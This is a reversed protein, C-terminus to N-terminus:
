LIDLPTWSLRMAMGPAHLPLNKVYSCDSFNEEDEIPCYFIRSARARILNFAWLNQFQGVSEFSMAVTDGNVIPAFQSKAAGILALNNLNNVIEQVLLFDGTAGFFAADFAAEAGGGPGPPTIGPILIPTLFINNTGPPTFEAFAFRPNSSTVTISNPFTTGPVTGVIVPIPNGSFSAFPEVTVAITMNIPPATNYEIDQTSFLEGHATDSQIGLTVLSNGGTEFGFVVRTTVTLTNLGLNFNLAGLGPVGGIGANITAPALGPGATIDLSVSNISILTGIAGNFVSNALLVFNGEDPPNVIENGTFTQNAGLVFTGNSNLFNMGSPATGGGNFIMTGSGNRFTIMNSNVAGNFTVTSGTAGGNIEAIPAIVTGITGSVTSTGLFTVIGVDPGTINGTLNVNNAFIATGDNGLFNVNGTVNANFAMTGEGIFDINNSFIPSNFTVISIPPLSTGAGGSITDLPLGSAGLTANVISTGLFEINGIGPSAPVASGSFFNSFNGFVATGDNNSFQINGNLGQNFTMTGDGSFLVINTNVPGNFIVNTLTAGGTITNLALGAGQEGTVTSSGLFTLNGTNLATTTASGTFNSGPGFTATGDNGLFQINGTLNANFQMTGTGDYSVTGAFVANNFTVTTSAVGGNIIFVPAGLAGVTGSVTSTGLFTLTGLGAPSTVNGTINQGAGIVATGNFGTGGNAFNLNGFIGGNFTMTNTGNFNINAATVLNSFTVNGAGGLVTNLGFGSSGLTATVVSSGLFVINGSGNQTNTADGTFTTTDAFNATGQFSAFNIDASVNGNFNATAANAYTITTAFVAGNFTVIPVNISGLTITDLASGNAGVTGTVVSTVLFTVSGLGPADTSIASSNGSGPTNVTATTVQLNSENTSQAVLQVGNAAGVGNIPQAGAGSVMQAAAPYLHNQFLTLQLIFLLACIKRM